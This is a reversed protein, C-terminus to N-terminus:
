FILGLRQYKLNQDVFEVQVLYYQANDDVRHVLLDHNLMTHFRNTKVLAFEIQVLLLHLDMEYVLVYAILLM